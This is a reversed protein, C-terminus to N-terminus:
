DRVTKWNSSFVFTVFDDDKLVDALSQYHLCEFGNVQVIYDEMPWEATELPVAEDVKALLRSVIMKTGNEEVNIPWLINTAPLGNREVTLQIRM